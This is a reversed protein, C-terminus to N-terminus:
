QRVRAWCLSQHWTSLPAVCPLPATQCSRLLGWTWWRNLCVIPPLLHMTPPPITTTSAHVRIYGQADLLMNEPKLDRYLINLSHLHELAAVVCAAYFRAQPVPVYGTHLLYILILPTHTHTRQCPMPQTLMGEDTNALLTFLEGGSVLQLLMYLADADKYRDALAVLSVPQLLM